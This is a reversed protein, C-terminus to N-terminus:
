AVSRKKLEAIIQMLWSTEEGRTKRSREIMELNNATTGPEWTERICVVAKALFKMAKESENELVSLELMTAHDWYDPTAGALRQEVAFRVVPLLRDKEALMEKDGSIDLLTILNIGPYADRQDAMFGRRYANIAQELHGVAAIVEGAEVAEKWKDKYIRGILGLTESSPGQKEAVETLIRLAEARDALNKQKGARRNYAFGLQERVLIQRKLTEPMENFLEIMGDWEELARYSLMLDVVTVADVSDVPGIKDRFEKLEAHAEKRTQENKNKERIMALHRKFEENTQARDRFVDTKLRAIDGPQWESLLTFLPSDVPAEKVTLDRLECLKKEVSNRLVLAEEDGFTNNTGLDYPLSSLFNVDFPIPQRKAFITLTTRPRATHRVGLEYFVNANSTTLDAVAFDCLLLREFMPKHIIGGTREEDARIPDMGAGRIAPELANKYIRDFDIDPGGSPDPKKNFPMIVFCLPRQKM